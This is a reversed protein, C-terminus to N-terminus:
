SRGAAQAGQLQLFHRDRHVLLSANVRQRQREAEDIPLVISVGQGDRKGDLWGGDYEEGRVSIFRGRGHRRDRSFQGEYVDGNERVERGYGSREDDSWDGEYKYGASEQFVGWGHRRYMRLEGDYSGGASYIITGSNAPVDSVFRGSYMDGGALILLGRGHRGDAHWAGKYVAGDAYTMTGNGARVSEAFQGEYIAGDAYVARGEGTLHGRVFAGSRECGEATALTGQGHPAYRLSPPALALGDGDVDTGGGHPDKEDDGSPASGGAKAELADLQAFEGTYVDGNAYQFECDVLTTSARVTLEPVGERPRASELGISVSCGDLYTITGQGRLEGEVWTASLASGDRLTLVGEGHRAGHAHEGSFSAGGAYSYVGHGHEKGDQWHGGYMDNGEDSPSHYLNGIGHFADKHWQGEYSSGNPFRMLGHGARAGGSFSGEYVGGNAYRLTGHGHREDALWGGDYEDGNLERCVGHGDRVGHLFSGSYRAGDTYARRGEGHPRLEADLDGDYQGGAAFRVIADSLTGDETWEGEIADGSEHLSLVGTGCPVGGVMEGTFTSGGRHYPGRPSMAGEAAATSVDRPRVLTGRGHPEDAKWQGSYSGGDVYEARGEGERLGGIWAGQYLVEAPKQLQTIADAAADAAANAAAYVADAQHESASPVMVMTTLGTAPDRRLRPMPASITATAPNYTAATRATRMAAELAVAAEKEAEKLLAAQKRAAVADAAAQASEPSAARLEGVGHYLGNEWQGRYTSGDDLWIVGHACPRWQLFGGAYIISESLMAMGVGSLQGGKFTGLVCLPKGDRTPPPAGALLPSGGESGGAAQLEMALSSSLWLGPGTQLGDRFFGEYAEGSASLVQGYGHVSSASEEKLFVPVIEALAANLADLSSPRLLGAGVRMDLLDSWRNMLL